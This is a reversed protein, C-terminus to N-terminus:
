RIRFVLLNLFPKLLRKMCCYGPGIKEGVKIECTAIGINSVFLGILYTLSSIL